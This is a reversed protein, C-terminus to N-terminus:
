GFSPGRGSIGSNTAAPFSEDIADGGELWLYSFSEERRERDIDWVHECKELSKRERGEGGISPRGTM